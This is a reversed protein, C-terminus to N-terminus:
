HSSSAPAPEVPQLVAPAGTSSAPAPLDGTPPAAAPVDDMQLSGGLPRALGDQFKAWVLVRRIRGFPDATLQGSAGPLYSGV